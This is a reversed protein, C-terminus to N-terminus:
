GSCRAPARNRLHVRVGAALSAATLAEAVRVILELRGVSHPPWVDGPLVWWLWAGGLMSVLGSCWALSLFGSWHRARAAVITVGALLLSVFVLTNFRFVVVYSATGDPPVTVRGLIFDEPFTNGLLGAVFALALMTAYAVGPSGGVRHGLDRM